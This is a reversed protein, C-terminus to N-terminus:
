RQLCRLLSWSSWFPFFGKLSVHKWFGCLQEQNTIKVSDVQVRLVLKFMNVGFVLKCVYQGFSIKCTTFPIMKKHKNLMMETGGTTKFHHRSSCLLIFTLFSDMSSTSSLGKNSWSSTLCEDLVPLSTHPNSDVFLQTSFGVFNSSSWVLVTLGTFTSSYSMSELTGPSDCAYLVVICILVTEPNQNQGLDLLSLILHVRTCKPLCVNTVVFNSTYSVFTLIGCNQLIQCWKKPHQIACPHFCVVMDLGFMCSM